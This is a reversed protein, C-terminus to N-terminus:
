CPALDTYRALYQINPSIRNLKNDSINLEKLEVLDYIRSTLRTAGLGSLDLYTTNHLDDEGQDVRLQAKSRFM